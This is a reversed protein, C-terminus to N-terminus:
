ESGKGGEKDEGTVMYGENATYIFFLKSTSESRSLHASLV